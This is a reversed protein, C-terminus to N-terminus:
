IYDPVDAAGVFVPMALPANPDAGAVRAAIKRAVAGIQRELSRVGAERTYQAIIRHLADDQITVQDLKLGHEELQRPILYQRAIHLKEEESYGPLSIIEMRDILAPHITALQNATAISLVASLDLNIELYHDRFSHNQATDLVELLAAAPDGRWDAGVKAVEGRMIVRTMTGPAP